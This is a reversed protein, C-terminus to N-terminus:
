PLVPFGYSLRNVNCYEILWEEEEILLGKGTRCFETPRIALTNCYKRFAINYIRYPNEYKIGQEEEYGLFTEVEHLQGKCFIIQSFIIRRAILINEILYIANQCVPLCKNLTMNANFNGQCLYDIAKCIQEETKSRKVTDGRLDLYLGKYNDWSKHEPIKISSIKPYDIIYKNDNFSDLRPQSNRM